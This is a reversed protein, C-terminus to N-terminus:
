RDSRGGTSGRNPSANWNWTKQDLHEFTYGAELLRLIYGWDEVDPRPWEPTGPIPFGGVARVAETRVLHTMPIFNGFRRLHEAQEPGFRVGWPLQWQGGVSVATPDRGGVMRPVPYVLAVGPDRELVRMNAMLHQPQLTDDDDLWAIVDARVRALARNRTPAAGTRETDHEVVLQDPMRRQTEVSLLARSLLKERGPITPIVVAVSLRTM